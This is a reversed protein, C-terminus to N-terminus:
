AQATLDDRLQRKLIKGAPNRPLAEDFLFVQTPIKFPAIREALFTRLEDTDIAQGDRPVIAVAVEEGLREHPLGFVAAEYVAPHEYIAAEVEASYVNEGGRLIMDKARDEIYVFGEADMRGLDGTRLWGDVITEATAEPKNWYGRIVNPGKMWIEGLEGAPVAHLEPDRIEVELIPTSRGTSTPRSEYDIGSNGPGYANTETMGYGINPKATKFSSGVRGVLQPPAPAGGGGVSTLTSTDYKEFDPHELLDWSQTPVGIFNTVREREILQLARGADWKHMVVLKLGSILSGLFVPVNGTVHFLPVILIFVPAGTRGAAEEPRRLSDISSKCGFGMLAQIVARHTSVAGKPNGTTGSTYLITADDDPDIAVDPREAGVVVVDEWREVSDPVDGAPLRVGITRIGLAAAADRSREVREVDAVLVKAGSDELGYAMEDPTWWANMSVIVAGISIAGLYTFIWEPYNRMAIAVRDGKVVGYDNVLAAAIGDARAYVEAYTYREDEYVLYETDGYLRTLDFLDKLTGPAGKFATYTVGGVDIETTEYREGPATIQAVAEEYSLTM